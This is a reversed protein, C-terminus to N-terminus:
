SFVNEMTEPFVQLQGLHHSVQPPPQPFDGRFASSVRWGKNQPFALQCKSPQLAWVFPLTPLPGPHQWRSGQLLGQEAGWPHAPPAM